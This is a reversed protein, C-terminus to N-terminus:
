SFRESLGKRTPLAQLENLISPVTNLSNYILSTYLQVLSAGLVVREKVDAASAIGGVAVLPLKGKLANAFLMLTSAALPKLPAGSLGGMQNKHVSKLTPPRTVTTNGVVLAHLPFQVVTKVMAEIQAPTLDPAVKLWLPPQAAAKERANLVAELLKPLHEDNQLERLGPTNPSSINITIYDAVRAMRVMGAVYDAIADDSDKNKGINVGVRVRKRVWQPLKDLNQYVAELGMNNFGLRNIIAKDEVLRYLRPQPNGEQPRPTVTGVEIFGFGLRALGAVAEGNKDFGAALGVPNDVAIGAVNCRLRPTEQWKDPVWGKKLVRIALDHATEPDLRHLLRTLM